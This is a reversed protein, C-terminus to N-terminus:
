NPLTAELNWRRLFLLLITLLKLTRVHRPLLKIGNIYSTGHEETIYDGVEALVCIIVGETLLKGMTHQIEPELTKMKFKTRIQYLSGRLIISRYWTLRWKLVIKNNQTKNHKFMRKEPADYRIEEERWTCDLWQLKTEGCASWKEFITIIIFYFINIINFISM